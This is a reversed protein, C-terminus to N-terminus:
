LIQILEREELEERYKLLVDMASRVHKASNKELFNEPKIYGGDFLDYFFDSTCTSEADKRFELDNM